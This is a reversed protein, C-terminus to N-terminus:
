QKRGEWLCNEFIQGLNMKYDAFAKFKFWDSIKDNPSSNLNLEKNSVTKSPQPQKKVWLQLIMTYYPYFHPFM